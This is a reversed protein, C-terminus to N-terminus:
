DPYGRQSLWTRTISSLPSGRSCLERLLNSRQRFDPGDSVLGILVRIWVQRMKLHHLGNLDLDDIMGRAKQLDQRSLADQPVIEGTLTDFTFYAEPRRRASTACPDVYGQPPWKDRKSLNCGHCALVWNSWKYVLQPFKTKPRFHDIEGRDLCECYACICSFRQRVEGRFDRWRADTPKPGIGNMYHQVWGATYLSRVRGLGNPEPGRDVSHM